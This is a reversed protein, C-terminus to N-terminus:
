LAFVGMEGDNIVKVGCKFLFPMEGFLYYLVMFTIYIYPSMVDEDFNLSVTFLGMRTPHCVGLIVRYEIIAYKIGGSELNIQYLDYGYKKFGIPTEKSNRIRM